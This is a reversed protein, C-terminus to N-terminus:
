CRCEENADIPGGCATCCTGECVDGVHARHERAHCKERTRANFIEACRARANARDPATSEDDEGLAVTCTLITIIEHWHQAVRRLGRIQDDTITTGIVPTSV